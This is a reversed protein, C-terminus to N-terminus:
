KEVPKGAKEWALIGGAMEQVDTFGADRLQKAAKASRAGSRCYVLIPKRPDVVAKVKQVFEDESLTVRKAGNLHGEDWEEKTRVDLLQVGADIKEAASEVPVPKSVPTSEAAPAMGCMAVGMALIM